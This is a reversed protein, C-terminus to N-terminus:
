LPTSQATFVAHSLPVALIVPALVRAKAPGRPVMEVLFIFQRRSHLILLALRKSGAKGWIGISFATLPAEVEPLASRM